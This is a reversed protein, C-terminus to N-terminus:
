IFSENEARLKKNEIFLRTTLFIAVVLIIGTVPIEAHVSVASLSRMMVIQAINLIATLAVSVALAISCLTCLGKSTEKLRDQSESRVIGILKAALMVVSIDLVNTVFTCAVGAISLVKDLDGLKGRIIEFIGPIVTFIAFATFVFTLVCMINRTHDLLQDRTCARMVRIMRLVFYLIIVSWGAIGLVNNFATINESTVKFLMEPANMFFLVAFLVIALVFLTVKEPITQRGKKTGLAIIVPILSLGAMLAIAIGNGFAGLGAVVRLGGAVQEFPFAFMSFPTSMYLEKLITIVSLIVAECICALLLTKQKM